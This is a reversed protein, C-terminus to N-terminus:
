LLRLFECYCVRYEETSNLLEAVEVDGLDLFISRRKCESDAEDALILLLAAHVDEQEFEEVLVTPIPQFEESGVEVVDPEVVGALVYSNQRVLLVGQIVDHGIHLLYTESGFSGVGDFELIKASLGIFQSPLAFAFVLLFLVSDQKELEGVEEHSEIVELDKVRVFYLTEVGIVEELLVQHSVQHPIGHCCPMCLKLLFMPSHLM